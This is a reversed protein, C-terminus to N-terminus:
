IVTSIKMSNDYSYEGYYKEEAEKRAKIADDLISYNGLSITKGNIGICASYKGSKTPRIGNAGYKNTMITNHMNQDKTVIRLNSKRNDYEIHNIHDVDKDEPCNMILRHMIIGKSTNNEHVTSMVYGQRDMYWCYDKIRDYDELDFYFKEGKSTYGVGNTGSLDYQNYKKQFRNAKSLCGCSKSHKIQFSSKEIERGCSCGCLWYHYNRGWRKRYGLDKLVTLEGYKDGIEIKGNDKRMLFTDGRRPESDGYGDDFM